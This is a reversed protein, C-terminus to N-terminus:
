KPMEAAPHTAEVLEESWHKIYAILDNVDPSVGNQVYSGSAAMGLLMCLPMEFGLLLGLCFGANLNDGGGTLVVPAKVVRGEMEIREKKTIVITRDVPHVLLASISMTNYISQAAVKLPPLDIKMPNTKLNFGNLAMWIKYTENENLGLTVNGYPSFSSMIDLIEDIQQVTKRTPDCLDFLFHFDNKKLPKIIDHLFGEWIDSAHPLNVWDVFALLQCNEVYKKIEDPNVHAKICKWDYRDFVELDSLIIKGDTFELADSEGPNLISILKSNAHIGSFVPHIEPSGMAGACISNIGLKGLANCLIPANGGSKVKKTVVEVQGSKGKLSILHNAFDEITEFFLSTDGEKKLVPKQIKDIFGDFGAFVHFSNKSEQYSELFTKLENLLLPSTTM